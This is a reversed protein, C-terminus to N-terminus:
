LERTFASFVHDYLITYLYSNRVVFHVYRCTNHLDLYIILIAKVKLIKSDCSKSLLFFHKWNFIYDVNGNKKKKKSKETPFSSSRVVSGTCSYRKQHSSLFTEKDNM